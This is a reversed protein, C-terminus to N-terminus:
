LDFAKRLIELDERVNKDKETAEARKLKALVAILERRQVIEDARTADTILPDYKVLGEHSGGEPSHKLQVDLLMQTFENSRKVWVPETVSVPKATPSASAAPTQAICAGDVMLAVALFMSFVVTRRMLIDGHF